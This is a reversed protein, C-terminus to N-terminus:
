NRQNSAQRVLSLFDEAFQQLTNQPSISVDLNSLSKIGNGQWIELLLDALESVNTRDFFHALGTAQERHVPLDSLLMPVQLARAEEVTTSWGEYLSPNIIALSGVMLSAVDAYPVMGLLRFEDVVEEQKILEEVEEFYDPNNPDLKKGSAAIVVSYGNRKLLGLAQIVLIHNKHQWFQNPLYFYREPLGYLQRVSSVVHDAPRSLLSQNFRVVYTRGITAPYYRECTECANYSSLMIFRGTEIQKRFGLERKWWAIYSFFHPLDRHQFDPIWAIAPIGINKGFFQASEFVIDIRNDNFLRKISPHVGCILTRLLVSRRRSKNMLESTIIEVGSILRFPEVDDSDLDTGLFLVPELAGHDFHSLVRLLNLLYNYGGTWTKGGILTFAIRTM